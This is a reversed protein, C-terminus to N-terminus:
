IYYRWTHRLVSQPHRLLTYIDYCHTSITVIDLSDSTRSITFSVGSNQKSIDRYGFKRDRNDCFRSVTYPSSNVELLLFPEEAVDCPGTGSGSGSGSTLKTANVIPLENCNGHKWQMCTTVRSSTNATRLAVGECSLAAHPSPISNAIYSSWSQHRWFWCDTNGIVRCNCAISTRV